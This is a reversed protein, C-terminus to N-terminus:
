GIADVLKKVAGIDDLSISGATRTSGAASKAAARGKKPRGGRKPLDVKVQAIQQPTLSHQYKGKIWSAIEVNSKRDVEGSALAAQVMEKQTPKASGNASAKKATAMPLHEMM